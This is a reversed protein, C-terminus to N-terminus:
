VGFRSCLYCYALWGLWYLYLMFPVVYFGWIPYLAKGVFLILIGHCVNFLFLLINRIAYNM